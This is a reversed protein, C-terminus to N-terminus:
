RSYRVLVTVTTGDGPASAVALTAGIAEARERMGRLGYHGSITEADAPVFGRGNDAITISLTHQTSHLQVSISSANAHRLANEVAEGAIRLLEMEMGPPLPRLTGTTELVVPLKPTSKREAMRHLRSALDFRLDPGRM